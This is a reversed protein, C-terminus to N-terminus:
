NIEGRMRDLLDGYFNYRSRVIQEIGEQSLEMQPNFFTVAIFHTMSTKHFIPRAIHVNMKLDGRPFDTLKYQITDEPNISIMVHKGGCLEKTTIFELLERKEANINTIEVALKAHSNFCEVVTSSDIIDMLEPRLTSWNEYIYKIVSGPPKEIFGEIKYSDVPAVKKTYAVIRSSHYLGDWVSKQDALDLAQQCLSSAQQDLQLYQNDTFM